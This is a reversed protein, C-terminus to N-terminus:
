SAATPSSTPPNGHGSVQAARLIASNGSSCLRSRPMGYEQVRQLGLQNLFMPSGKYAVPDGILDWIPGLSGRPLRLFSLAISGAVTM